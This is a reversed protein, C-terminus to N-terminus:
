RKMWDPEKYIQHYAPTKEKPQGPAKVIEDNWREGRLYTTPDPIFGRKWRDDHALRNQIDEILDNIFPRANPDGILNVIEIDEFHNKEWVKRTDKKKVKRPYAAWFRDFNNMSIIKLDISSSGNM